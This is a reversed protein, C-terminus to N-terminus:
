LWGKVVGVLVLYCWAAGAWGLWVWGLGAFVLCEWAVGILNLNGRPRRPQRPNEDDPFHSWSSTNSINKNKLDKAIHKKTTKQTEKFKGPGSPSGQTKTTRSNVWSSIQKKLIQKALGYCYKIKPKRPNGQVERPRRPQRPNEDDAFQGPIKYEFNTQSVKPCYPNEKTEMPKSSSGPAAQAAEPKRRGFITGPRRTRYTQQCITHLTAKM